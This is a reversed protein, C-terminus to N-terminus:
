VNHVEGKCFCLDFNRVADTGVLANSIQDSFARCRANTRTRIHMLSTSKEIERALLEAAVNSDEHAPPRMVIICKLSRSEGIGDCISSVTVGERGRSWSFTFSNM